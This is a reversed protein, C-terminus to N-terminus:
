LIRRVHNNVTKIMAYINNIFECPGVMIGGDLGADFDYYKAEESKQEVVKRHKIIGFILFFAAGLCLLKLKYIFAPM